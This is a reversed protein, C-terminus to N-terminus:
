LVSCKWGLKTQLRNCFYVEHSGSGGGAAAGAVGSRHFLLLLLLLTRLERDWHGSEPLFSCVLCSFCSFYHFYFCRAKFGLWLWVVLLPPIQLQVKFSDGVEYWHHAFVLWLFPLTGLFEGGWSAGWLWQLAWTGGSLSPVCWIWGM